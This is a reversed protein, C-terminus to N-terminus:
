GIVDKVRREAESDRFAKILERMLEVTDIVEGGEWRLIEFALERRTM